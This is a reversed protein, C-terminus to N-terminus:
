VRARPAGSRGVRRCRAPEGRAPGGTARCITPAFRDTAAPTADAVAHAAATSMAVGCQVSPYTRPQDGFLMQGFSRQYSAAVLTAKRRRTFQDAIAVRGASADGSIVALRAISSGVSLRPIFGILALPTFTAILASQYVQAASERPAVRSAPRVGAELNM